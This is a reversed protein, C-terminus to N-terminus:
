LAEGPMPKKGAGVDEIMKLIFPPVLFRACSQGDGWLGAMITGDSGKAVFAVNGPPLDHSIPPIFVFAARIFEFQADSLQKVQVSVKAIDEVAVCKQAGAGLIPDFVSPPQQALVPSALVAALSLVGTARLLLLRM